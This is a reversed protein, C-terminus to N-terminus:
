SGEEAYGLIEERERKPVGKGIQDEPIRPWVTEELARVLAAKREHSDFVSRRDEIKPAGALEAAPYRAETERVEGAPRARRPGDFPM